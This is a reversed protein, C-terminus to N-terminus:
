LPDGPYFASKIEGSRLKAVFGETMHIHREEIEEGSPLVRLAKYRVMKKIARRLAFFVKEYDHHTM